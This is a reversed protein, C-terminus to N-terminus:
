RANAGRPKRENRMAIGTQSFSFSNWFSRSRPAQLRTRSGLEIPLRSSNVSCWRLWAALANKGEGNSSAATSVISPTPSHAVVETASPRPLSELHELLHMERM